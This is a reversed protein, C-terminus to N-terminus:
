PCVAKTEPFTQKKGRLFTVLIQPFIKRWDFGASFDGLHIALASTPLITAMRPLSVDDIGSCNCVEPPTKQLRRLKPIFFVGVLIGL